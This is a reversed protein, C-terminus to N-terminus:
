CYETPHTYLTWSEKSSGDLWQKWEKMPHGTVGYKDIRWLELLLTCPNVVFAFYFGVWNPDAFICPTPPAWGHRRMLEVVERSPDFPGPRAEKLATYTERRTQGSSRLPLWEFLLSDLVSEFEPPLQELLRNRWALPSCSGRFPTFGRQLEHAMLLPLPACAKEVLLIQEDETLTIKEYFARAPLTLKDRVFTYTFGRDDWGKHFLEEHLLLTFAHTPSNILMRRELNTIRPPLAKLVDLLFIALDSASEVWRAETTFNSERRYYTKLLTQMTGGSIYAWPKAEKHHIRAMRELAQRMFIDSRVRHVIQTTINVIERRGTEWECRLTLLSEAVIFFDVLAQTYEDLNHIFSWSASHSRGHKYMLRFGAPSDDYPGREIERLEPDYIEQFYEPFLADYEKLLFNLFNAYQAAEYHQKDRLEVSIQLQYARSQHEARLRRISSESSAQALLRETAILQQEMLICENQHEEIKQNAYKLKEELHAYILQGIGGEESPNLGLSSYFNWRSFEMKVESFSALTYEWMKLLPHQNKPVEISPCCPVQYEYGGFTRSLAGKTLLQLLDDVLYHLQEAQILIAPATAFCSGLTQRLPHFLASLLACRLVRETLTDSNAALMVMKDAFENCLPPAFRQLKTLLASDALLQRTAYLPQAYSADAQQLFHLIKKLREKSIKGKEDVVFDALALARASGEEKWDVFEMGKGIIFAHMNFILILLDFEWGARRCFIEGLMEFEGGGFLRNRCLDVADQAIEGSQQM